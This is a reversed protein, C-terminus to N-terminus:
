LDLYDLTLTPDEVAVGRIRDVYRTGSHYDTYPELKSKVFFLTPVLKILQGRYNFASGYVKSGDNLFVDKTMYNRWVGDGFNFDERTIKRVALEALDAPTLEYETPRNLFYEKHDRNKPQPFTPMAAHDKGTPYTIFSNVLLVLPAPINDLLSLNAAPPLSELMGDTVCQHIINKHVSPRYPKERLDMIQRRNFLYGKANEYFTSTYRYEGPPEDYVGHGRHIQNADCDKENTYYDDDCWILNYENNDYRNLDFKSALSGGEKAIISLCRELNLGYLEDDYELDSDLDRGETYEDDLDCEDIGYYDPHESKFDIECPGWPRADHLVYTNVDEPDEVNTM